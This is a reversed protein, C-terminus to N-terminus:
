LWHGEVADRRREQTSAVPPVANSVPRSKSWETKRILSMPDIRHMQDERIAPGDHDAPLLRCCIRRKM